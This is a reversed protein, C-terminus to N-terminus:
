KQGGLLGTGVAIFSVADWKPQIASLRDALSSALGSQIGGVAGQLFRYLLGFGAEPLGYSATLILRWADEMRGQLSALRVLKEFPERADEQSLVLFRLQKEAEPYYQYDSLNAVLASRLDWNEPRQLLVMRHVEELRQRQGLASYARCLSRHIGAVLNVDTGGMRLARLLLPEAEASLDREVLFSGLQALLYPDMTESRLADDVVKLLASRNGNLGGAHTGPLPLSDASRRSDWDTQLLDAARALKGLRSMRSLLAQLVMWSKPLLCPVFPWVQDMRRFLGRRARGCSPGVACGSGSSGPSIAERRTGHPRQGIGVDGSDLLFGHLLYLLKGVTEPVRGDETQKAKDFEADLWTFIHQMGVDKEGVGVERLGLLGLTSPNEPKAAQKLIM